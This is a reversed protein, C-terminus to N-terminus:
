EIGHNYNSAPQAEILVIESNSGLRMPMQFYGAGSSVISYTENTKTIGYYGQKGYSFRTFLTAPFFQGKHTHGCVILDISHKLAEEIGIPNHDMVIKPKSSQIKISLDDLSLRNMTTSIDKRGILIFSDTEMTEDLLLQIQAKKFFAHVNPNEYSPDHNGLVAVIEKAQLQCFLQAIEDLPCPEFADQDFIDGAFLIMDPKLQNVQHIIKQLQKQNVFTGIHLDSLLAIKIPSTINLSIPYTQVVVKKAHIFGYFTILIAIIVPILTLSIQNWSFLYAFFDYGLLCLLLNLLFCLLISGKAYIMRSKPTKQIRPYILMFGLFLTLFLFILGTIHWHFFYSFLNGIRYSTYIMFIFAVIVFLFAFLKGRVFKAFGHYM